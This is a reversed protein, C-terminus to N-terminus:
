EVPVGSFLKAIVGWKGDLKMFSLIDTFRTNAVRLKVRAVATDAGTFDISIIEDERPFSPSNDPKSGVLDVFFDRPMDRLDGDPSHGYIHAAQHFVKDMKERSGEFSGDFYMQIIEQIEKVDMIVGVM